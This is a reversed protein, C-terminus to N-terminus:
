TGMLFLISNITLHTLSFTPQWEAGLERRTQAEPDFVHGLPTNRSANDKPWLVECFKVSAKLLFCNRHKRHSFSFTKRQARRWEAGLERRTQAEPDFVYGLPARQPLNDRKQRLFCGGTGEPKSM